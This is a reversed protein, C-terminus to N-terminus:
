ASPTADNKTIRGILRHGTDKYWDAHACQYVNWVGPHAFSNRIQKKFARFTKLHTIITWDSGLRDSEHKAYIM